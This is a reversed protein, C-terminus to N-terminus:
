RKFTIKEYAVESDELAKIGEDMDEFAIEFNYIKKLKKIQKFKYDYVDKYDKNKRMILAYFPIKNTRLFEVTLQRLREQRGTLFIIKYGEKEYSILRNKLDVNVKENLILEKKFYKDWNMSDDKEEAYKHRYSEDCITGDIDCLIALYKMKPLKNM